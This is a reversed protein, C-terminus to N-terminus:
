DITNIKSSLDHIILLELESTKGMVYKVLGSIKVQSLVGVAKESDVKFGFRTADLM